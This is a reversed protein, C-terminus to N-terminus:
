GPVLTGQIVRGEEHGTSAGRAFRYRSLVTRDGPGAFADSAVRGSVVKTVTHTPVYAALLDQFGAVMTGTPEVRILIWKSDSSWTVHHGTSLSFDRPTVAALQHGKRDYLFERFQAGNCGSGVRTLVFHSGDPAWARLPAFSQLAVVRAAHTELNVRHVRCRGDTYVARSADDSVALASLLFRPRGAARPITVGTRHPRHGPMGILLRRHRNVYAVRGDDLWWWAGARAVGHEAVTVVDTALHFIRLTSRRRFMLGSADPSLQVGSPSAGVAGVFRVTGRVLDIVGGLLRSGTRSLRTFSAFRGDTSLDSLVFPRAFRTVTHVGVLRANGQRFRPASAARVAPTSSLVVVGVLVILSVFSLPRRGRRRVNM